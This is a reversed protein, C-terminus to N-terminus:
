LSFCRKTKQKIRIGLLSIHFSEATGAPAANKTGVPAQRWPRCFCIVYSGECLRFVERLLYNVRLIEPWTQSALGYPEM